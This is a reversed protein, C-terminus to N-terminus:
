LSARCRGIAVWAGTLVRGFFLGAVSPTFAIALYGSIFPMCALQITSRRGLMQALPSSLLAGVMAGVNVIASFLSRETQSLAFTGQIDDLVAAPSTFGMSYGFLFPGIAVVATALISGAPNDRVAFAPEEVPQVSVRSSDLLPHSPNDMEAEDADM